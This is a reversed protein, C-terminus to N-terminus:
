APGPERDRLRWLSGQEGQTLLRWRSAKPEWVHVYVDVVSGVDRLLEVARRGTLDEGLVRGSRVDVVRFRRPAPRQPAPRPRRPPREWEVLALDRERGPKRLTQELPVMTAGTGKTETDLVWVRGM